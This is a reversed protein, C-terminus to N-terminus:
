RLFAELEALTRDRRDELLAHGAGAMRVLRADFVDIYEEAFEPAIYDCEGRVVLVRLMGAARAAEGRTIGFRDPHLQPVQNAYYGLGAPPPEMQQEDCHLGAATRDYLEGFRRDMEHDGAFWHAADPDVATLTYVFLNRPELALLYTQVRQLPTLRAQPGQPPPVEGRWPIAGPSLLALDSVREPHQVAFATAVSAGWSLAILDVREAGTSDVVEALEHVAAAFDYGSPHRLRDSRGTGAQDFIVVLRNSALSRLAREELPTWPVGPGGHVAVIPDEGPTLTGARRIDISPAERGAASAEPVAPALDDPRLFSVMSVLSACLWLVGAARLMGFVGADTRSPTTRSRRTRWLLRVGFILACVAATLLFSVWLATLPAANAGILAVVSAAQLSSVLVCAAVFAIVRRVPHRQSTPEPREPQEPRETQETTKSTPM